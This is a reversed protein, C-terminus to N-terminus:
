ASFYVGVLWYFYDLHLMNFWLEFPKRKPNSNPISLSTYSMNQVSLGWSTGAIQPPPPLKSLLLDLPLFHKVLLGARSPEVHEGAWDEKEAEQQGHPLSEVGGYAGCHEEEGLSLIGLVISQFRQFHPM